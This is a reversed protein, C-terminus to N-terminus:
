ISQITKEFSSKASEFENESLDFEGYWIYNYLYSIYKFDSKTNEDKIEFLYDSNTKEPNFEIKRKQSLKKLTWIYYYRIALRNQGSKITDQILKEFDVDSLNKKILDFDVNSKGESKNFIWAGEKQLFQKSILYVAVCFLAIGIAWLFINGVRTTDSINSFNFIRRILDYFWDSLRQWFTIEEKKELYNFDKGLYDNKWNKPFVYPKYISDVVKLSLKPAKNAVSNQIGFVFYLSFSLILLTKKIM